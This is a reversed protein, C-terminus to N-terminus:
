FKKYKENYSHAVSMNSNFAYQSVSQNIHCTLFQQRPVRSGGERGNSFITIYPTVTATDTFTSGCPWTCCPSPDPRCTRQLVSRHVGRQAEYHSPRVESQELLRWSRRWTIWLWDYGPSYKVPTLTNSGWCSTASGWFIWFRKALDVTVGLVIGDM